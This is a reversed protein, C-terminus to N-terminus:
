MSKSFYCKWRLVEVQLSTNKCLPLRNTSKNGINGGGSTFKFYKLLAFAYTFHGQPFISAFLFAKLRSKFSCLTLVSRLHEQLKNWIQQAYFGFAAEAHKTRSLSCCYGLHDLLEPHSMVSCCILSINQDWVIWHKTSILLLIKFDSRQHITEKLKKKSKTLVRAAANQILQLQRISKNCLGTFVFAHVLKKLDQPSMVWKLRAINKLHYYASKTVRNIHPKFNLGSDLTVSLNRVQLRLCWPRLIFVSTQDDKKSFLQKQKM